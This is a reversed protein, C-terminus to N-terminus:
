RERRWTTIKQMLKNECEVFSQCITTDSLLKSSLGRVAHIATSHDRGGTARSIQPFSMKTLKHALYMAVHRPTVYERIRYDSEIDKVSVGFEKAVVRKIIEYFWPPTKGARAPNILDSPPLEPLNLPLEPEPNAAKKAAARLAAALADTKQDLTKLRAERRNKEAELGKVGVPRPLVIGPDAVPRPPHMLRRRLKKALRWYALESPSPTPTEDSLMSM